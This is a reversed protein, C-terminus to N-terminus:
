KRLYYQKTAGENKLTIIAEEFFTSVNEKFLNKFEEEQLTNCFTHILTNIACLNSLEYVKKKYVFEVFNKALEM